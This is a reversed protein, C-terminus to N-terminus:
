RLSETSAYKDATVDSSGRHSDTQGQARTAAATVEALMESTILYHNLPSRWDEMSLPSVVMVLTTDKILTVAMFPKIAMYLMLLAEALNGYVVGPM